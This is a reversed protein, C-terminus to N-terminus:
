GLRLISEEIEANRAPAYSTETGTIAFGAKQLVRLSGLNDSAARAYLPRVLVLELFQALAQTAVGQGM